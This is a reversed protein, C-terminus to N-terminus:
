KSGLPVQDWCALEAKLLKLFQFVFPGEFTHTARLKSIRFNTGFFVGEIFMCNNYGVIWSGLLFERNKSIGPTAREIQLFELKQSSKGKKLKPSFRM